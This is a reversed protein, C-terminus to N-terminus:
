MIEGGAIAISQGTISSADDSCLWRVTAAIEEPSILRQQPNHAVLEALAEAESRGTKAVIAAVADAVLETDTYGPSVANVTIGTSALEIALARTLGVLGHKSACYAAVYAYGKLGATSAMNIIRGGGAALMHPIVAQCCLFHGTLNVELMRRWDDETHELFPKIIRSGANNVLVDIRGFREMAAAAMADVQTRNAIDVGLGIAAGGASEIDTALRVAGEGDLDAATVAAGERAFRRAIALGIGSAAGTIIASKGRFRM